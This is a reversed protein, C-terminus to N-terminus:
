DFNDTELVLPNAGSRLPSGGDGRSVDIDRPNWSVDLTVSHPPPNESQVRITLSTTIVDQEPAHLQIPQPSAILQVKDPLAQPRLPQAIWSALEVRDPWRRADRGDVL